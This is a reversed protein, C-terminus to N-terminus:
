EEDERMTAIGIFLVIFPILMLIMSVWYQENVETM